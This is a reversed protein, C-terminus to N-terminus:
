KTLNRRASSVGTILAVGLLAVVFAMAQEAVLREHLFVVGILAASIPLMVTYVGAHHAPIDRLGRVWLVVTWVSAALGYFLLLAWDQWDVREFAFAFGPQIALPTMLALGWLNILASMRKAGVYPSLKKAIVVYMAECCVAGFVLANGVWHDDNTNPTWAAFGGIGLVALAIAVLARVSLRERLLLTSLLAVVAPLSSMIVGATSANTRQVGYLICISFLFNGFFSQAFLWIHQTRGLPLEDPKRAVWNVMAVAGIAFRLWALLFIPFVTVLPKTLAVYSGVLAM